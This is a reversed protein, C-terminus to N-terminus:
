AFGVIYWQQDYYKLKVLRGMGRKRMFRKALPLKSHFAGKWASTGM